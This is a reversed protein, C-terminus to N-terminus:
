NIQCPSLGQQNLDLWGVMDLTAGFRSVALHLTCLSGHLGYPATDGYAYEAGNDAVSCIVVHEPVRFDM